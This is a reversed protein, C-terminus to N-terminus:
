RMGASVRGSKVHRLRRMQADVEYANGIQATCQQLWERFFAADLTRCQLRAVERAQDILDDDASLTINKVGM